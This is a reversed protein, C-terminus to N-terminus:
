GACGCAYAYLVMFASNMAWEKKVISSGYLIVLDPMSQMGVLMVSIM